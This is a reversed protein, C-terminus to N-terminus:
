LLVVIFTLGSYVRALCRGKEMEEFSPIPEPDKVVLHVGSLHGLRGSNRL